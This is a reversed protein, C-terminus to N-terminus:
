HQFKCKKLTSYHLCDLVNALKLAKESTSRSRESGCLSKAGNPMLKENWETYAKREMQCISKTGNPIHKKNWEADTKRKIESFKTMM